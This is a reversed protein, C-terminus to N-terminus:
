SGLYTTGRRQKGKYKNNLIKDTNEIKQYESDATAVFVSLVM